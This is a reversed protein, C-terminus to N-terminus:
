RVATSLTRPDGGPKIWWRAHMALAAKRLSGDNLLTDLLDGDVAGTEARLAFGHSEAAEANVFHDAGWPLILQPVGVATAAL